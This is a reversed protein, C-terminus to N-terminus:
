RREYAKSVPSEFTRGRDGPKTGKGIEHEKRVHLRIKQRDDVAFKCFECHYKM